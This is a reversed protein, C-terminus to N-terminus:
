PKNSTPSPSAKPLEYKIFTYGNAAHCGNCGAVAQKFAGDFEKWNKAKIAADLKDLSSSEFAKLM